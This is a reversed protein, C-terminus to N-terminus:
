LKSFWTCECHKRTFLLVFIVGRRHLWRGLTAPGVLHPALFNHLPHVKDKPGVGVGQAGERRLAGDGRLTWPEQM